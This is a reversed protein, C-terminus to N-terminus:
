CGCFNYSLLFYGKQDRWRVWGVAYRPTEAIDTDSPGILAWDGKIRIIPFANSEMSDAIASNDDYSKHIYTKKNEFANETIFYGPLRKEWREYTMKGTLRIWGSKGNPQDYLIKCWDTKYEIVAFDIIWPIVYCM